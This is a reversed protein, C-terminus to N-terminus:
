SSYLLYAAPNKFTPHRVNRVFCVGSKLQTYVAIMWGRDSSQDVVVASYCLSREEAHSVHCLALSIQWFLWIVRRWKGRGRAIWLPVPLASLHASLFICLSLSHSPTLPALLDFLQSLSPSATLCASAFRWSPSPFFLLVSSPVFAFIASRRRWHKAPSTLFSFHLADIASSITTNSGIQLSQVCVYVCVCLRCAFGTGRCQKNVKYATVILELINRSDTALVGVTAGPIFNAYNQSVCLFTVTVFSTLSPESDGCCFWFCPSSWNSCTWQSHPEMFLCVFVLLCKAWVFVHMKWNEPMLRNWQCSRFGM